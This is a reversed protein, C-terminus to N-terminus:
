PSILVADIVHVVGNSAILDTGILSVGDLKIGYSGFAVHLSAGLMPEITTRRALDAATVREAVIHRELVAVLREPEGLLTGFEGPSLRAFADDTPALLTFPGPQRLLRLLRTAELASLLTTFTGAARITEVIDRDPGEARTPSGARAIILFVLGLALRVSRGGPRM